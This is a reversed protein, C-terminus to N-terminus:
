LMMNSVGFPLCVIVFKHWHYEWQLLPPEQALAFHNIEQWSRNNDNSDSLSLTMSRHIFMHCIEHKDKHCLIQDHQDLAARTNKDM